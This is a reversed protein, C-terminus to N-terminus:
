ETTRRSMQRVVAVGLLAMAGFLGYTSPEPASGFGGGGGGEDPNGFVKDSQDSSGEFDVVAQFRVSLGNEGLWGAIVDTGTFDPFTFVFTATSGFAIGSLPNGGQENPGSGIGFDQAYTAPSLDYPAFKNWLDGELDQTFSVNSGGDGLDETTFPTNFGFTTITGMAGNVGPITNDVFVTVTNAVDDITFTFGATVGTEGGEVVYLQATAASALVAVALISIMHKKMKGGSTPNGARKSEFRRM